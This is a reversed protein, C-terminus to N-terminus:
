SIKNVGSSKVVYHANCKDKLLKKSIVINIPKEALKGTYFLKFKHHVESKTESSNINKNRFVDALSLLNNKDLLNSELIKKVKSRSILLTELSTIDNCSKIYPTKNISKVWILLYHTTVKSDDFLWGDSLVGNANIFSLEFAFTPIDMNVYHLAAKEDVIFENEQKNTFLVDKGSIQEAKSSIRLFKKIPLNPYFYKDLFNAVAIEGKKDENRKSNNM